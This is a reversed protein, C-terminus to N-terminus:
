QHKNMRREVQEVLSRRELAPATLEDTTKLVLEFGISIKSFAVCSSFLFCALIKDAPLIERSAICSNPAKTWLTAATDM